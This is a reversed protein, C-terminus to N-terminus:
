RPVEQLVGPLVARVAFGGDPREGWTVSGGVDALRERLGVLGRGSGTGTGGGAPPSNAVMVVLGTGDRCAEVTASAGPAHRLVNTLAEQVVRFAAASSVGDLSQLDEIRVDVTLGAARTHELLEPLGAVGNSEAADVGARAAAAITDLLTRVRDPEFPSLRRAAGAQLAVVTLSHGIQDHIDRAVRFREAVVARQTAVSQQDALERNNDRSQEVLRTAEHVAVGGLWGLLILVGAGFPDQAGIGIVEGALCVVLGTLATRRRTLVAVAFAAALAAAVGSVTGDLPTVLRSFAWLAIWAVALSPMPRWALLAFPIGVALSTLVTLSDSISPSAAYVSELALGASIVGAGLVTWRSAAARVTRLHDVAVPSVPELPPPLPATLALVEERTRTLLARASEELVGPEAGAEAQAALGRLGDLLAPRLRETARLREVLVAAESRVRQEALILKRQEALAALRDRRLRVLRGVVTPLVGVFVTVFLVGNVLAWGTDYPLDACLVVTLPLLAGLVLARGKAHAGLSYCALLMAFIWVGGSDDADPWVALQLLTGATAFGTLASLTLVARTRRVALTTLVPAGLLGLALPGPTGGHVVVAEVAAALVFLVAVAADVRNPSSVRVSGAYPRRALESDKKLLVERPPASLTGLASAGVM